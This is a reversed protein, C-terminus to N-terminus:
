TRRRRSCARAAQEAAGLEPARGSLGELQRDRSRGAGARAGVPDLGRHHHRRVGAPQHRALRRGRARGIAADHAAVELDRRPRRRRREVNRHSSMYRRNAEAWRAAIRGLMGMASIAEANRMSIEALGNRAGAAQTADQMPKKTWLETLITLTILLIAGFLAAMGIWFHFFVFCIAIYIPLWPLDFFAIPGSGSLFSRVNDLDRLPQLGDSRTGVRLPIKM